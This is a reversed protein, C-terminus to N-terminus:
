IETGASSPSDGDSIEKLYREGDQVGQTFIQQARHASPVIVTWWPPTFVRPRITMRPDFFFPSVRLCQRGVRPNNLSFGGDVCAQGRFSVSPAQISPIHCSARIAEYLDETNRFQNVLLNGYPRLRTISVYVRDGIKDLLSENIFHNLFQDAFERLIRPHLLINKGQHPRLIRDAVQFIEGAEIGGALLVSLGSGASAGTFLLHDGLGYKQLALAVGTQYFNLTGCGAFGLADFSM